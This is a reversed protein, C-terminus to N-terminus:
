GIYIQMPVGQLTKGVYEAEQAKKELQSQRSTQDLMDRLQEILDKKETRADSLLDQQNLTAESDPIPLTSYKGRVYALLEKALALTYRFIWQKGVSNIKAYNPNEYPVESVNTIIEGPEDLIEHTPYGITVHGRLTELVSISIRNKDLIRISEPIIRASTGDEKDEFVQINLNETGLNHTLVQTQVKGPTMVVIDTAIVHRMERNGMGLDVGKDPYGIVLYGTTDEAFSVSIKNEDIIEVQYPIFMSSKGDIEQYAQVTVETTGLNHEFEQVVMDNNSPIRVSFYMRHTSMTSYRSVKANLKKKDSLKYYEIRLRGAISPIPFVRLKNNHIEFSYSSKRVQDNFEIAQIQLLDASIPMLLFNVGPSYSGFDFAELLSQVGTGTGAMPDFYRLIAPPAEYFVRRIEIGGQIGEQEAWLDLDYTQIGPTLDIFGVNLDINGGVGAELGYNKAIEVIRHLSPEVVMDNAPIGTSGGELSLYNERVKYEFVQNGYTTVAEEFCAFFSGSDLEVDMLPYGLRTACFRAVKVADEPFGVQYDYFGFPTSEGPTFTAKGNWVKATAM